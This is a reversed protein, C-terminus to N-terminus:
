TARYWSTAWGVRSGRRARVMARSAQWDASGTSDWRSSSLSYQAATRARKASRLRVSPSTVKSSRVRRNRSTSSDGVM